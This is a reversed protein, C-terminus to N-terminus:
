FGFLARANDRFIKQLIESSVQQTADVIIKQSDPWNSALHPYDSLHGQRRRTCRRGDCFIWHCILNVRYPPTM